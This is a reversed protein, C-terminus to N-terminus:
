RITNVHLDSIHYIQQLSRIYAVFQQCNAQRSVKKYPPPKQAHLLTTHFSWSMWASRWSNLKEPPHECLHPLDDTPGVSVPCITSRPIDANSLRTAPLATGKPHPERWLRHSRHDRFTQKSRCHPAAEPRHPLRLALPGDCPFLDSRAASSADSSSRPFRRHSRSRKTRQNTQLCPHRRRLSRVAAPPHRRVSKGRPIALPSTEVEVSSM